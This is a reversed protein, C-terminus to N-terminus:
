IYIQIFQAFMLYCYLVIPLPINISRHMHQLTDSLLNFIYVRADRCASYPVCVSRTTYVYLVRASMIITIIIIIFIWRIIIVDNHITRM